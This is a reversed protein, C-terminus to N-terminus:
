IGEEEIQDLGARVIRQIEMKCPCIFECLAYDEPDTELIGLKVAEDSDRALVARVLYDVLINLPMVRDYYGTLVMARHGGNMNTTLTWSEGDRTPSSWGSAYARSFSLRGAPKLWGLFERERGERLVTLEGTRFPLATDHSVSVGSLCDGNIVRTEEKSVREQLFATLDAGPAIRYHKRHAPKVGPGGLAIVRSTPLEGKLLLQGILVVDSARVAWVTDHPKIPDIAAIHVSTNGAPHPGSFGHTQVHPAEKFVSCDTDAAHCLHVAGETLRTLANLGAQFADPADQVVVAPDVRHPASAMANVFISKPEADPAAGRSFPRQQILSLFGTTALTEILSARDAKLLEDATYKPFSEAEDERAVDIVIQEVFRRAGRVVSHIRGAAPARYQLREDRKDVFLVSGRKVDDGDQVALRLKIGHLEGPYVTVTSPAAVEEIDPKPAGELPVDYGKKVPPHDM